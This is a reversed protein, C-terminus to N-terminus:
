ISAPLNIISVSVWLDYEGASDIKVKTIDGISIEKRTSVLVNGDIEPADAYSRGIIDDGDIEDILVDLTQGVKRMLKRESIETQTQM